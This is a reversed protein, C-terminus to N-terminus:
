IMCRTRLLEIFPKTPSRCFVRLVSDVVPIWIINLIDSAGAEGPGARGVDPQQHVFMRVADVIAPQNRVYCVGGPKYIQGGTIVVASAPENKAIAVRFNVLPMSGRNLGDLLSLVVAKGAVRIIDGPKNLSRGNPDPLVDSLPEPPM